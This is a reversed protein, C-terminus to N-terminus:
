DSRYSLGARGQEVRQAADWLRRHTSRRTEPAVAGEGLRFTIAGARATDWVIAGADRWRQVISPRPHRFLNGHGTSMIAHRARTAAVFAPDSSTESGHHAVVVVDAAL